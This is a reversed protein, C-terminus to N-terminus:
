SLTDRNEDEEVSFITWPADPLNKQKLEKLLCAWAGISAAFTTPANIVFEKRTKHIEHILTVKYRMHGRELFKYCPTHLYNTVARAIM